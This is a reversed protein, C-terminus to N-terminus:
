VIEAGRNVGGEGDEDPFHGKVIGPGQKVCKHTKIQRKFLRNDNGHIHVILNCFYLKNDDCRVQVTDHM